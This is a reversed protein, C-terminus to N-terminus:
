NLRVGEFFLLFATAATILTIGCGKAVSKLRLDTIEKRYGSIFNKGNKTEIISKHKEDINIPVILVAAYVLLPNGPSCLGLGLYPSSNFDKKAAAAGLEYYDIESTNSEAQGWALGIFLLLTLRKTVNVM